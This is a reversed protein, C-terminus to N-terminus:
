LSLFFFVDTLYLIIGKTDASGAAAAVDDVAASPKPDGTDIDQMQLAKLVRERDVPCSM